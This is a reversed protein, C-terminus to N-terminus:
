IRPVLAWQNVWRYGGTVPDTLYNIEQRLYGTLPIDNKPVSLLIRDGAAIRTDLFYKNLTWPDIGLTKLTGWMPGIDFYSAGSAQAKDIYGSFRGLVTDGSGTVHQTAFNKLVSTLGSGAPAPGAPCNHVLVAVAGAQLYFDHPGPVTLDWMWGDHSRPTWGGLVTVAAGSPARLHDGHKLAGAKVWRHQTVDWFPHNRTTGIVSTRTGSRVRLSFLNTDHNLWVASVAAPGTRGTKVNTAIVEDGERLKSIAVTKGSATLVPSSARFSLGGCSAAAAVPDSSAVGGAEPAAPAFRKAIAAIAALAAITGLAEGTHGTAFEHYITMGTGALGTLAQKLAWAPSAFIFLATNECADASGGFCSAADRFPQTASTILGSGVNKVGQFFDKGFHEACSLGLFGCGSGTSSTGTSGTSTGGTPDPSTEGGGGTSYGGGNPDPMCVDGNTMCTGTPDENGVPDDDAYAYGGMALPDGAEFLPDLSLFRGTAPNYQRAGLLDYGTAADAPQGVFAHNDPWAPPTGVPAGWPDFYRRSIAGSSANVTEMSTGQTNAVEYSITTTGTGANDHSRVVTTGDSSSYYRNAVTDGASINYTLQEAGGDIYITNSAPDDEAILNGDADYAFTATQTGGGSPTTVSAVQGQPTYTIQESGWNQGSAGACAAIQLQTGATTSNGPDTLCMGSNPNTLNGNAGPTWKQGAATGSCTDFEVLSGSTKANGKVALCLGKAKLSGNAGAVTFSQKAANACAAIDAKTGSTTGGNFDDACLRGSSPV